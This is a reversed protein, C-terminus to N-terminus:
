LWVITVRGALSDALLHSVHGPRPLCWDHDIAVLFCNLHLSLLLVSFGYVLLQLLSERSVSLGQSDPLERRGNVPFARRVGDGDLRLCYWMEM